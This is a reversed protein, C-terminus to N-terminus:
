NLYIALRVAGLYERPESSYVPLSFELIDREDLILKQMFVKSDNRNELVKKAFQDNHKENIKLPDGHAIIKGEPTLVMAYALSTIAIKISSLHNFLKLEDNYTHYQIASSQMSKVVYTLLENELKTLSEEGALSNISSFYFVCVLIFVFFRKM